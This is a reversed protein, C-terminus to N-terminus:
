QYCAWGAQGTPLHDFGKDKCVNPPGAPTLSQKLAKCVICFHRGCNLGSSEQVFNLRRVM